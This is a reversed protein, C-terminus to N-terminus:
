IPTQIIRNELNNEDTHTSQKNIPLQASCFLAVCFECTDGVLIGAFGGAECGVAVAVDTLTSVGFNGAATL